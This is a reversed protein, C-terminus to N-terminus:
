LLEYHMPDKYSNGWSFGAPKFIKEFLIANETNGANDVARGMPFKSANLDIATGWSHNSIGKSSDWRIHRAVYVGDFTGVFKLLEPQKVFGDFVKKWSEVSLKHVHIAAPFKPRLAQPVELKTMNNAVWQPDVEIRGKELDKYNFDGFRKNRAVKTYESM